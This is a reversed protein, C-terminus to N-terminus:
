KDQAAERELIKKHQDAIEKKRKEAAQAKKKEEDIHLEYAAIDNEVYSVASTLYGRVRDAEEGEAKKLHELRASADKILALAGALSEKDKVEFRRAIELHERAWIKVEALKSLEEM